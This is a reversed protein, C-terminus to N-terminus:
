FQNELGLRNPNTANATDKFTSNKRSKLDNEIRSLKYGSNSVSDELTKEKNFTKKFKEAVENHKNLQATYRDIAAEDDSAVAENVKELLQHRRNNYIKEQELDPNFQLEKYKNFCKQVLEENHNYADRNGYIEDIVRIPRDKEAYHSFISLYDLSLAVVTLAKLGDREVLERFCNIGCWSDNNPDEKILGTKSDIQILYM